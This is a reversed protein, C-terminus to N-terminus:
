EGETGKEERGKDGKGETAAFRGRLYM